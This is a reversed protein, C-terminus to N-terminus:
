SKVLKPGLTSPRDSAPPRDFDGLIIAARMANVYSETIAARELCSACWLLHGEIRPEDIADKTM